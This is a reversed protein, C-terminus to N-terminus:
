LFLFLIIKSFYLAFMNCAFLISITLIFFRNYNHNIRITFIFLTSILIINNYIIFINYIIITNRCIIIVTSIIIITVYIKNITAIIIIRNLILVVM